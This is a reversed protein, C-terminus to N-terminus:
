FSCICTSPVAPSVAFSCRLFICFTSSCSIIHFLVDHILIDVDMFVLQKEVLFYWLALVGWFFCMKLCRAAAIVYIDSGTGSFSGQTLDLLMESTSM